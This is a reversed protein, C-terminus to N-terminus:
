DGMVERAIGRSNKGGLSCWGGYWEEVNESIEQRLIKIITGGAQM